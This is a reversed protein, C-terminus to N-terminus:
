IVFSRFATSQVVQWSLPSMIVYDITKVAKLVAYKWKRSKADMRTEEFQMFNGFLHWFM